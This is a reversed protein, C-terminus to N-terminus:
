HMGHLTVTAKPQLLRMRKRGAARYWFVVKKVIRKNGPLDLAPSFTGAKILKDVQIKTDEGNGYVVKMRVFYMKNGTVHLRLKKFAGNAATVSIQDRDLKWGVKRSGLKQWKGAAPAAVPKKAPVSGVVRAGWLNLDARGKPRVKSKYWFVVKKIVRKTGSLDIERSTTNNAFNKRLKVDQVDGNGFHIKMDWLHIAGGTVKIRVKKFVGKLMTVPMVDKDVAFNAKRTGLKVWELKPKKVAPAPTAGVLKGFVRVRAKFLRRPGRMKTRYVMRVKTIHRAEGKLDFAPSFSGKSINKGVPLEQKTGNAFHVELDKIHIPAGIVQLRVKNFKKKVNVPIVDKEVNVNVKREGLLVWGGEAAAPGGMALCLGVAVCWVNRMSM